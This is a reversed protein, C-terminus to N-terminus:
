PQDPFLMVWIQSGAIDFLDDELELHHGDMVKGEADPLNEKKVCMEFFRIMEPSWDTALVKAGLRAAPLSLGGCGAAVDLFYQGRQLGALKLAEHALWIETETVFKNYGEAIGDWAQQLNETNNNPKTESSQNPLTQKTITEM